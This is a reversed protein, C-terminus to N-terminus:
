EKRLIYAINVWNRYVWSKPKPISSVSGVFSRLLGKGSVVVRGRPLAVKFRSSQVPGNVRSSQVPRLGNFRSSQVPRLGTSGRSRRETM